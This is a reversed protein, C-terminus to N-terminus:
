YISSAVPLLEGLELTDSAVLFFLGDDHWVVVAPPRPDIDDAPPMPGLDYVRGERGRISALRANEGYSVELAQRSAEAKGRFAQSFVFGDYYAELSRREIPLERKKHDLVYVALKILDRNASFAPVRPAFSVLERAEDWTAVEAFHPNLPAEPRSM